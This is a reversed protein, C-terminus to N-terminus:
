FLNRDTIMKLGYSKLVPTFYDKLEVIDTRFVNAHKYNVQYYLDARQDPQAYKGLVEDPNITITKDQISYSTSSVEKAINYYARYDSYQYDVYLTWDSNMPRDTYIIGNTDDISYHGFDTPNPIDAYYEIFGPFEVTISGVPIFQMSITVTNNERDIYYDGTLIVEALSSKEEKFIDSKSFSVINYNQDTTIQENLTFSVRRFPNLNTRVGAFFGYGGGTSWEVTYTLSPITEKIKQVSFSPSSVNFESQGDIFEVEKLFPNDDDPISDGDNETLHFVATSKLIDFDQLHLIRTGTTTPLQLNERTFTEFAHARIFFGSFDDNWYWDEDSLTDIPQHSYVVSTDTDSSIATYLYIIGKQTDISYDGDSSLEENGNLFTKRTGSLASEIGSTDTINNYTLHVERTEKSLIETASEAVHYRKLTLDEKNLGTRFNLTTFYDDGVKKFHLKEADFYIGIYSSETPSASTEGNGFSLTATNLDLHFVKSVSNNGYDDNYTSLAQTAQTWEEGAVYVHFFDSIDAPGMSYVVPDSGSSTKKSPRKIIPQNNESVSGFISYSQTGAGSDKLEFGRLEHQTANKERSGTFPQTLEVSGDIPINEIDFSFPAEVPIRHLETKLSTSQQLSIAKGEIFNEDVRSLISKLRLTKVPSSTSIADADVTNLNLIEPIESVVGSQGQFDRPQIEHWSQGNDPSLYYQIAALESYSPPNQSTDLLIKKVEHVSQFASSIFEGKPEFVLGYIDIDRIGIAYRYQTGNSTSIPYSETQEFIFRVYKVKRPTFTYIGKGAYKSTSPALLFINEEDETIFGTTPIDDKISTESETRGDLSTLIDVINVSARTGFNNPNVVIHNIIQSEGLNVTLDLKLIEGTDEDEVREYEFWTDPNSDLIVDIDNHKLVALGSSNLQYNNGVEGNSNDEDIVPTQTINVLVTKDKNIPLTVIGEEQNINCEVNNLLNSDTDIKLVNNFSDTFYLGTQLTDESYLIYDGLKSSVAKLRSFLKNAETSAFNFNSVSFNEINELETFIVTLDDLLTQFLSNYYIPDPLDAEIIKEPDFTPATLDKYLLNFSRIAESIIQEHTVMDDLNRAQVLRDSLRELRNHLLQSKESVLYKNSM